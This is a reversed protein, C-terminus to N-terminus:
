SQRIVQRKSLHRSCIPPEGLSAMSGTLAVGALYRPRAHLSM